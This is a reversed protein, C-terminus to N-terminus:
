DKNESKSILTQMQKGPNSCLLVNRSLIVICMNKEDAIDFEPYYNVSKDKIDGYNNEMIYNKASTM